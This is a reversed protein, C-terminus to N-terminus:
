HRDRGNIATKPRARVYQVHSDPKPPPTPKNEKKPKVVTAVMDVKKEYSLNPADPKDKKLLDKRKGQSPKKRKAM